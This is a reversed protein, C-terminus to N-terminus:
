GIDIPFENAFDLLSNISICLIPLKIAVLMVQPFLLVLYKDM